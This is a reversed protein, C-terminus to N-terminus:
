QGGDGRIYDGEVHICQEWSRQFKKFADQFNQETFTNLM